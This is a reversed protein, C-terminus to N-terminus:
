FSDTITKLNSIVFNSIIPHLTASVNHKINHQVTLTIHTNNVLHCCLSHFSSPLYTMTTTTRIMAHAEIMESDLTYSYTM